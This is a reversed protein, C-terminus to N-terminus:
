EGLDIKSHKGFILKLKDTNGWIAKSDYVRDPYRGYELELNYNNEDIFRCVRESLRVPEGSCANIIGNVRNQSVIKGVINCFDKYDLFDYLNKGSNFPFTIDGDKAAKSIKSFVSSGYLSNDVIYFARIWQLNVKKENCLITLYDRLANKAVGYYNLPRCPTDESVEGEFFGIEHMTGMVAIDSIGSSICKELFKIHQNLENMHSYENHSFGNRWALHVIKDPKSFYEFPNEVSFLDCEIGEVENPLGDIKMDTAIIEHGMTSLENCIGRGLYGNAGTVLIRM